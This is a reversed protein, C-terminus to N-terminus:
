LLDRDPDVGGLGIAEPDVGFAQAQQVLLSLVEYLAMARGAAYPRDDGQAGEREARAEHARSLLERTVDQLLLEVPSTPTM